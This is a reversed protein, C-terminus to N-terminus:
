QCGNDRWGAQPRSLVTPRHLVTPSAGGWRVAGRQRLPPKWGVKRKQRGRFGCLHSKKQPPNQKDQTRKLWHFGESMGLSSTSDFAKPGAHVSWNFSAPQTYSTSLRTKISQVACFWCWNCPPKNARRWQTKKINRRRWLVAIWKKASGWWRGILYVTQIIRWQLQDVALITKRKLLTLPVGPLPLSSAALLAHNIRLFHRRFAGRQDRGLKPDFFCHFFFCHGLLKGM